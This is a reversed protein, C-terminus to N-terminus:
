RRRDRVFAFICFGILAAILLVVMGFGSGSDIGFALLAIVLQFVIFCLLLTGLIEWVLSRQPAQPVHVPLGTVKNVIIHSGCRSCKGEMKDGLPEGCIPCVRTELGVEM